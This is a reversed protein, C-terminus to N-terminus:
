TQATCYVYMCHVCSGGFEKKGFSASSSQGNYFGKPETDGFEANNQM